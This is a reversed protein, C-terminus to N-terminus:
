CNRGCFYKVATNLLSVVQGIIKLDFDRSIWKKSCAPRYICTSSSRFVFVLLSFGVEVKVPALPFVSESNERCVAGEHGFKEQVKLMGGAPAELVGLCSVACM